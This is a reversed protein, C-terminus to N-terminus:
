DKILNCLSGLGTLYNLLIILKMKIWQQSIIQENKKRDDTFHKEIFNAGLAFASIPILKSLEDKPDFHDSYGFSVGFKSYKMVFDVFEKLSHGELPTPFTQVGMM